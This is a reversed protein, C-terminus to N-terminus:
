ISYMCVFLDLIYLLLRLVEISHVMHIDWNFFKLYNKRFFLVCITTTNYVSLLNKKKSGFLSLRQIDTLYILLISVGYCFPHRGQILFDIEKAVEVIDDGFTRFILKFEISQDNKSQQEQQEQQGEQLGQKEALYFLFQIFSPLLYFRGEKWAQQLRLSDKLCTSSTAIEQAKQRQLGHAFHLKEM